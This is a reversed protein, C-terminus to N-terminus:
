AVILKNASICNGIGHIRWKGVSVQGRSERYILEFSVTRANVSVDQHQVFAAVNDSEYLSM